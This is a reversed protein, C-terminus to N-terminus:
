CWADRHQGSPVQARPVLIIPTITPTKLEWFIGFGRTLLPKFETEDRLKSTSIINKCATGTINKRTKFGSSLM